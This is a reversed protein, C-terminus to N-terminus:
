LSISFMKLSDLYFFNKQKTLHDIVIVKDFFGFELLPFNSVSFDLQSFDALFQASEYSCYGVAGGCFPIDPLNYDGQYKQVYTDLLDFPNSHSVQTKDPYILQTTKGVTRLTLFPDFAMFSFRAPPAALSSDLYCFQPQHALGAFLDALPYASIDEQIM